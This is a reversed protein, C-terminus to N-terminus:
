PLPLAEEEKEEEEEEIGVVVMMHRVQSICDVLQKYCHLLISMLIPYLRVPQVTYSCASTYLRPIDFMEDFKKRDSKDLANRFPKWEREEMELALRFSPITRGM